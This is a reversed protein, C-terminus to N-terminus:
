LGLRVGSDRIPGRGGSTRIGLDLDLGGSGSGSGAIWKREGDETGGGTWGARHEGGDVTDGGQGGEGEAGVGSTMERAVRPSPGEIGGNEGAEVDDVEARRGLSWRGGAVEM